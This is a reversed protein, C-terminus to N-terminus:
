QVNKDKIEWFKQSIRNLVEDEEGFYRGEEVIGGWGNVSIDAIYKVKQFGFKEVM